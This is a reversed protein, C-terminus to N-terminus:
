SENAVLKFRYVVGSSVCYVDRYDREGVGSLCSGPILWQLGEVSRESVEHESREPNVADSGLIVLLRRRRLVPPLTHSPSDSTDGKSSMDGLTSMDGSFSM